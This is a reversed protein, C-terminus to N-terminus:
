YTTVCLFDTKSKMEGGDDRSPLNCRQLYFMFTHGEVRTILSYSVDAGKEKDAWEFAKMRLIDFM